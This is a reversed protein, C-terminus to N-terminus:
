NVYRMSIRRPPPGSARLQVSVRANESRRHDRDNDKRRKRGREGVLYGAVMFWAYEPDPFPTWGAHPALLLWTPTWRVYEVPLVSTRRGKGQSGGPLRESKSDM